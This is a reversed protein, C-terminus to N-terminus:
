SLYCNQIIKKKIHFRDYSTVTMIAIIVAKKYSLELPGMWKNIKTYNFTVIKLGLHFQNGCQPCISLRIVWVKLIKRVLANTLLLNLKKM